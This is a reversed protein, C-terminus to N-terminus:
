TENEGRKKLEESFDKMIMSSFWNNGKFNYKKKLLSYIYNKDEIIRERMLKNFEIESKVGLRKFLLRRLFQSKFIDRNSSEAAFDMETLKETSISFPLILRISFTLAPLKKEKNSRLRSPM